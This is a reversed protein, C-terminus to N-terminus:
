KSAVEMSDYAQREAVERKVEEVLPTLYRVDQEVTTWENKPLESHSLSCQMARRIRMVRGDVENQPLRRLAEKVVDNEEDILDDYRLGLYPVCLLTLLLPSSTISLEDHM